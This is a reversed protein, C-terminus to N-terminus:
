NINLGIILGLLGCIIVTLIAVIHRKFISPKREVKWIDEYMQKTWKNWPKNKM